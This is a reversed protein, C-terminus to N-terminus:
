QHLKFLFQYIEDQSKILKETLEPKQWDNINKGLIRAKTNDKLQIQLIHMIENKLEEKLIPVMIDIRKSLVPQMLDTSSIYISNQGSNHFHFIRSHELFRDVIRIVRINESFKKGPVLCCVGRIIIDVSVGSKSAEYLYDILKKDGLNNMKLIINAKKGAKAQKIENDILTKFVQWYSFRPILLHKLEINSMSKELFIFFKNLDDVIEPNSTFYGIDYYVQSKKKNFNGTSLYAFGIQKNEKSSKRRVILAAKAHIKYKVSSPIIHIGAALMKEILPTNSSGDFQAKFDVYISVKKGNMAASILPGTIASNIELKYQTTKIESVKPDIAAESFIRIIYDFPHYPFHLLIDKKKLAKLLSTSNEAVVHHLPTWTKSELEPKFPNPLSLLDSLNHYKYGAIMDKKPLKLSKRIKKVFHGPLNRDYQLRSLLGTKQQTLIEHIEKTYKRNLEDEIKFRANRSLIFSYSFQIFYLPFLSDLHLKVIDDLFVIYKKLGIDPLQIFRPLKASPINVLGYTCKPQAMNGENQNQKKKHLLVVQYLTNDQIFNVMEGKTLVVSHLHPLVEDFFFRKIFEHQESNLEQDNVLEIQHKSLEKIINNELVQEFEDEQTKVELYINNLIEKPSFDLKILKEKSLRQMIKYAAVGTRFFKDLNAQHFALFKIRDYIELDEDNAEQLVRNNFSLWSLAQDYYQTTEIEKDKNIEEVPM